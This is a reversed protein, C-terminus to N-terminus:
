PLICPSSWTAEDCDSKLAAAHLMQNHLPKLNSSLAALTWDNVAPWTTGIVTSIRAGCVPEALTLITSVAVFVTM